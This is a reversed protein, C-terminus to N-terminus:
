SLLTARWLAGPRVPCVAIALVRRAPSSRLTALAISCFSGIETEAASSGYIYSYRGIKCNVIQAGNGVSATKDIVSGRIANPKRNLVRAIGYKIKDVLSM